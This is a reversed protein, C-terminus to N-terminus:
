CFLWVRLKMRKVNIMRQLVVAMSAQTHPLNLHQRYLMVLTGYLHIINFQTWYILCFGKVGLVADHQGCLRGAPM